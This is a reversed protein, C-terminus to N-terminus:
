SLAMMWPHELIQEAPWKWVCIGMELADRVADVVERQTQVILERFQRCLRKIDRQYEIGKDKQFAEFDAVKAIVHGSPHRALFINVAGFDGHVYGKAHIYQLGTVIDRFLQKSVTPDIAMNASRYHWTFLRLTSFEAWESILVAHRGAVVGYEYVQLINPHRGLKRVAAFEPYRVNRNFVVKIAAVRSENGQEHARVVVAKNVSWFVREPIWTTLTSHNRLRFPRGPELGISKLNHSHDVPTWENSPKPEAFYPDSIPLTSDIAGSELVPPQMTTGPLHLLDHSVFALLLFLPTHGSEQYIQTTIPRGV